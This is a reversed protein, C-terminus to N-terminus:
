RSSDVTLNNNFDESSVAAQKMESLTALTGIAQGLALLAIGIPWHHLPSPHDKELKGHYYHPRNHYVTHGIDFRDDYLLFDGLNYLKEGIKYLDPNAESVSM